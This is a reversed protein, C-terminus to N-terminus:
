REPFRTSEPTPTQVLLQPNEGNRRDREPRCIHVQEARKDLTYVSSITGRM